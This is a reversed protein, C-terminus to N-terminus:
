SEQMLYVVKRASVRHFILEVARLLSHVQLYIAKLQLRIRQKNPICKRLISIKMEKSEEAKWHSVGTCKCIWM